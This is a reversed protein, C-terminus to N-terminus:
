AIAVGGRVLTRLTAPEIHAFCEGVARRLTDFLYMHKTPGKAGVIDISLGPYAIFGDHSRVKNCALELTVDAFTHNERVDYTPMPATFFKARFPADTACRLMFAEAAEQSMPLWYHTYRVSGNDAMLLFKLTKPCWYITEHVDVSPAHNTRGEFGSGRRFVASAIHWRPEEQM